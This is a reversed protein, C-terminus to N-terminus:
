ALEAQAREYVRVFPQWIAGAIVLNAVALAVARGDLTALGVNFLVPVTSPIYFIPRGVWGLAVATYTIAALVVPALVFPVALVPNYILPLGFIVPENVNLLSPVVTAYAFKRLRPVRSRLLLLVLPLTAGVGGPFIFLFTSVVVIHPLPEHHAYAATNAFQLSTYAPLVLAAMLAPGHIGVLWLVSEIAALAALAVFGDGLTALPALARALAGAVSVHLAFLVGFGTLAGLAGVLTGVPPGFRERGYHLATATALCVVIATFLGSAGLTRAFDDFSGLAARPLSLAFAILTTAVLPILPLGTRRALRVSLVLVTAVSAIAFAPAIGSLLRRPVLNWAQPPALALQALLAVVAVAFAVPLTERLALVAPAQAFRQAYPAVARELRAVVGDGAPFALSREPPDSDESSRRSAVSSPSM